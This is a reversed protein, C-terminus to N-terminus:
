RAFWGCVHELLENSWGAVILHAAGLESEPHTTTLAVVRMGARCGSEVGAPADEFVVCRQPPLALREAGLLFADPEPKGRRADEASVISVFSSRLGIADILVDINLRPSSSVIACPIGREILAAVFMRVGPVLLEPASPL